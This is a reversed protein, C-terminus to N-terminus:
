HLDECHLHLNQTSQPVSPVLENPDLMHMHIITPLCDNAIQFRGIPSTAGIVFRPTSQPRALRSRSVPPRLASM